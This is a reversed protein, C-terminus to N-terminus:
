EPQLRIQLPQQMTRSPLVDELVVARFGALRVTVTCPKDEDIPLEFRGEPYSGGSNSWSSGEYSISV